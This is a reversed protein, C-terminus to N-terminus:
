QYGAAVLIWFFQGIAYGSWIGATCPKGDLFFGLVLVLNVVFLLAAVTPTM